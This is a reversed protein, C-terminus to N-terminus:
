LSMKERCPVGPFFFLLGVGSAKNAAWGAVVASTAPRSSLVIRRAFRATSSSHSFCVGAAVSSQQGSVVQQQFCALAFPGKRGGESPKRLRPHYFVRGVCRGFVSNRTHVRSGCTRRRLGNGDGAGCCSGILMSGDGIGPRGRRRRLGPPWVRRLTHGQRHAIGRRCRLKKRSRHAGRLVVVAADLFPRRDGGGGRRGHRWSV